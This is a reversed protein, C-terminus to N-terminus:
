IVVSLFKSLTSLIIWAVMLVLYCLFFKSYKFVAPKGFSLLDKSLDQDLRWPQVNTQYCEVNGVKLSVIPKAM